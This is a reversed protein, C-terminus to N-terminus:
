ERVSVKKKEHKKYIDSKIKENIERVRSYTRTSILLAIAGRPIKVDPCQEKIKAETLETVQKSIGTEKSFNSGLFEEFTQNMIITAMHLNDSSYILHGDSLCKIWDLTQSSTPPLKNTITGLDSYKTRFMHAAYGAVFKLGEGELIDYIISDIISEEDLCVLVM